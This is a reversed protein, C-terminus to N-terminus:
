LGISEDIFENTYLQEATLGPKPQKGIKEFVPVAKAVFREVRAPDFDGVTDNPGNGLLGLELQTALSYEAQDKTYQWFTAYREVLDVIVDDTDGPNEAYDVISQQIVPVLETLCARHQELDDAKVVLAQPYLEWGTDHVLQWAVDKGWEDALITKYTYPESSVFGQQASKGGDSIFLSPDGTYSTDIQSADVIGEAVLYEFFTTGAFTRIKVKDAKLDAITKADPYTAPDWMVFQPNKDLPAVVAVTPIEASLSVQEDTSVFGLMISPDQKMVASVTQDGISPGGTRIEVDVGTDGGGAVLPGKVKRANTDVEYADGLLQYVAGHEAEPFWDTQIVVTEPCVDSLDVPGPAAATTDGASGGDDDGCAALLLAGALPVALLAAMRRHSM